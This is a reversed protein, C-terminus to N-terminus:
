YCDLEFIKSLVLSSNTKLNKDYYTFFHNIKKFLSLTLLRKKTMKFLFNKILDGNSNKKRNNKQYEESFLVM